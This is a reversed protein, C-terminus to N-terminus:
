VNESEDNFKESLYNALESIEQIVKVKIHLDDSKKLFQLLPEINDFCRIIKDTDIRNIKQINNENKRDKM